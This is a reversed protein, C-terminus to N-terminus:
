HSYINIPQYRLHFIHIFDFLIMVLPFENELTHM